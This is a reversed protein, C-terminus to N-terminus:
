QGNSWPQLYRAGLELGMVPDAVSFPVVLAVSGAAGTVGAEAAVRLGLGFRRRGVLLLAGLHVSVKQAGGGMVGCAPLVSVSVPPIGDWDTRLTANTGDRPRWTELHPRRHLTSGDPAIFTYEDLQLPLGPPIGFRLDIGGSVEWRGESDTRTEIRHLPPGPWREALPAPVSITEVVVTANAVPRGDLATLRGARPEPGPLPVFCGGASLVGVLLPGIGLRNLNGRASRAGGRSRLM